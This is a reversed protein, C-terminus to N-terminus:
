VWEMDYIPFMGIMYYISSLTWGSVANTTSLLTTVIIVQLLILAKKFM